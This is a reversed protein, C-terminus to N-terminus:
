KLEPKIYSWHDHVIKWQGNIRAYVKTSNWPRNPDVPKGDFMAGTNYLNYSLVVTDRYPKAIINQMDYREVKVKGVLPAFHYRMAEIGDIRKGTTPDFYSVEPAYADLYGTPDGQNWRNLAAQELAVIERRLEDETPVGLSRLSYTLMLLWIATFLAATWRALARAGLKLGHGTNMTAAHDYPGGRFARIEGLAYPEYGRLIGTWHEQWANGASLAFHWGLSLLLGFGCALPLAWEVQPVESRALDRGVLGALTANAVLFLQSRSWYLASEGSQYKSFIDYRKLAGDQSCLYPDSQGGQSKSQDNSSM